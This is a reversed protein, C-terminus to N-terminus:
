SIDAAKASDYTIKKLLDFESDNWNPSRSGTAGRDNAIEWFNWGIKKWLDYSRDNFDPYSGAM